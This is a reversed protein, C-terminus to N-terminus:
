PSPAAAAPRHLKSLADHCGAGLKDTNKRLCQMGEHSHQDACLSKIEAECAQMVAAHAAQRDASPSHGGSTQAVVSGTVALAAVFLRVGVQMSKDKGPNFFRM